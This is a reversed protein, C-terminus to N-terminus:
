YSKPNPIVVNLDGYDSTYLKLVFREGFAFITPLEMKYDLTYTKGAQFTPNDILFPLTKGKVYGVAYADCTATKITTESAYDNYEDCYIGLVQSAALDSGSTNKWEVTIDLKISRLPNLNYKISKIKFNQQGDIDYNQGKVVMGIASDSFLAEQAKVDAGGYRSMNSVERFIDIANESKKGYSGDAKGSLYGLDILRQQLAKVADGKDGIKISTYKVKETLPTDSTGDASTPAAEQGPMQISAYYENNEM